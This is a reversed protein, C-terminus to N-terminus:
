NDDEKKIVSDTYEIIELLMLLINDSEQQYEDNYQNLREFIEEIDNYQTILKKRVSSLIVKEPTLKSRM